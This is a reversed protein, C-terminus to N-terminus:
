NKIEEIEQMEIITDSDILNDSEANKVKQSQIKLEDIKQNFILLNEKDKKYKNYVVNLNRYNIYLVFSSFVSVAIFFVRYPGHIIISELIALFLVLSCIVVKAIEINLNVITITM